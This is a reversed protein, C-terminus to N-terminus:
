GDTAIVRLEDISSVSVAPNLECRWLRAGVNICAHFEADTSVLKIKVMMAPEDLDFEVLDIKSPDIAPRYKVNTVVYGSIPSAGEGQRPPIVSSAYAYTTCGIIVVFFWLFAFRFIKLM